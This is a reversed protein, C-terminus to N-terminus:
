KLGNVGRNIVSVIAQRFVLQASFKFLDPFHLFLMQREAFSRHTPEIGVGAEM